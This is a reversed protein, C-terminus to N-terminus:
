ENNILRINQADFFGEKKKSKGLEFEFIDSYNPLRSIDVTDPLSSFHFFASKYPSEPISNDLVWLHPSIETMYKLYGFRKEENYYSCLGRVISGEEGWVSKMNQPILNPILYGSLFLDAERKLDTSVNDMAIVEVRCGQNQVSTVVKAFDGDGSVLTIKDLNKSQNLLDVALDLDANAKGYRQGDEDKYWKVEKLIVKYGFSRLASHFKQSRVRYNSDKDAREKDYSIYANLRIPESGDRCVFERLIDYRMNNGGCKYINQSDVYLGVKFGTTTNM